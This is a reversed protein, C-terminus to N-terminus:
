KVVLVREISTPKYFLNGSQVAKITVVGTGIITAMGESITIVDPNSLMFSVPLGSSATAQLRFPEEGFTKKHVMFEIVQSQAKPLQLIGNGRTGLYLTDALVVMADVIINGLPQVSWNVGKDTSVFLKSFASAYLVGHQYHIAHVAINDLASIRQWTVGNNRSIYTNLDTGSVVFVSDYLAILRVGPDSEAVNMKKWSTKGDSKFLGERTGAYLMNDFSKFDHIGLGPLGKNFAPWVEASSSRFIGNMWGNVFFGSTIQILEDVPSVHVNMPIERGWTETIVHYMRIRFAHAVPLTDHKLTSNAFSIDRVLPHFISDSRKKRYIGTSSAIAWITGDSSVQLSKFEFADTIGKMAEQWVRTTNDWRYVANWAGVIMLDHHVAMATPVFQYDFFGGKLVWAATDLTSTYVNQSGNTLAFFNGGDVELDIVNHTALGENKELWTEGKDRTLFIGSSFMGIVVVNEKLVISTVYDNPLGVNKSTWTNGHDSSIYLGHAKTGVVILNGKVALSTIQKNSFTEIKSPTRSLNNAVLLSLGTYRGIFLSDGDIAVTQIEDVILNKNVWTKGNDRSLYIHDWDYMYLDGTRNNRAFKGKPNVSSHFNSPRQWTDGQDFSEYLGGTASLLIRSSDAVYVDSIYHVEDPGLNKLTQAPASIFIFILVVFAILRM